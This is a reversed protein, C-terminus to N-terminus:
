AKRYMDLIELLNQIEEDALIFHEKAFVLRIEDSTKPMVNALAIANERNIKDLQTLEELLKDTDKKSLKSFKKCYELTLNQEYTLEGDKKRQAILERVETLPLPEQNVLKKGIM